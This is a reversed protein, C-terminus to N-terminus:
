RIALGTGGTAGGLPIELQGKGRKKRLLMANKTESDSAAVVPTMVPPDPRPTAPIKAGGGGGGTCLILVKKRNTLNKV